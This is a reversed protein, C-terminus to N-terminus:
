YLQKKLMIAKEPDSNKSNNTKFKRGPDLVKLITEKLTMKM